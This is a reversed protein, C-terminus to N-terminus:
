LHRNTNNDQIELLILLQFEELSQRYSLQLFLMTKIDFETLKAMVM